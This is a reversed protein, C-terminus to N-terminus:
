SLAAAITLSPSYDSGRLLLAEGPTFVVRRKGFIRDGITQLFSPDRKVREVKDDEVILREQFEFAQQFSIDRQYRVAEAREAHGNRKPQAFLKKL